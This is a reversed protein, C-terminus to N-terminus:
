LFTKKEKRSGAVRDVLCAGLGMPAVFGGVRKIRGRAPLM